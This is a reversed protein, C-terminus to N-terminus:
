ASRAARIAAPIDLRGAGVRASRRGAATATLIGRVAKESLEPNAAIVLAAAGAVIPTSLSTGNDEMYWSPQGDDPDPITTTTINVGPAAIDVGRGYNSFTAPRGDAQISAVGLVGADCAPFEVTAAGSNGAAAVLVSGKGGRGATRARELARRIPTSPPGGGFSMSIVAAGHQWAWDIGAVIWSVKSVYSALPDPTRGIRVVALGAGAAVGRIGGPARGTAALLGACETGHYDWVAPKLASGRGTTDHSTITAGRLDPHRGLVGCDLVAVRVDSDLSQLAWAEAAGVARLAAQVRRTRGKLSLGSRGVLVHDPEAFDVSAMKGLRLCEAAPDHGPALRVLYDGHRREVVRAGRRRLGALVIRAKAPTAFGIWIRDTAVVLAAGYRAVPVVAHVHRHRKLAAAARAHIAKDSGGAVPVLAFSEGPLDHHARYSQM